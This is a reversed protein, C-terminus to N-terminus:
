LSALLPSTKPRPQETRCCAQSDLSGTMNDAGMVFIM